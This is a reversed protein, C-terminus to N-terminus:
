ILRRSQGLGLDEELAPSHGVWEGLRQGLVLSTDALRLVYRLLAENVAREPRLASAVAPSM